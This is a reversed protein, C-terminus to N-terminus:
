YNKGTPGLGAPKKIGLESCFVHSEGIWIKILAPSAIIIQCCSM